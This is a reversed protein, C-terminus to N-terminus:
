KIRSKMAVITCNKFNQNKRKTIVKKDPSQQKINITYINMELKKEQSTM